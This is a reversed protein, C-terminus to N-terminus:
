CILSPKLIHLTPLQSNIRILTTIGKRILKFDHCLHGELLFSPIVFYTYNKGEKKCELTMDYSNRM